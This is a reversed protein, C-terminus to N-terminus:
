EVSWRELEPDTEELLGFVFDFCSSFLLSRTFVGALPTFLEGLV